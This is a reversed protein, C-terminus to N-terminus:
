VMVTGAGGTGTGAAAAIALREGVCPWVAVLTTMAPVLKPVLPVTRKPAVTAVVVAQLAVCTVAVTGAESAGPVVVTVTVGAPAATEFPRPKM